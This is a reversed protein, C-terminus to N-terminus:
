VKENKFINLKDLSYVCMCVGAINPWANLSETGFTLVVGVILIILYITKM